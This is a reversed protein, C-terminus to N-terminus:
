FVFWWPAYFEVLVDKTEDQVISEFTKGVVVIVPGENKEPVPDSKYHPKVSGSVIGEAWATLAEVEFAGAYPYNLRLEINMAAVVPLKAADGGMATIQDKYEVGDSYSFMFKGKVKEAVATITKLSAEKEDSKSYDMFLVALPLGSEAFRQFNEASIEEVLPYGNSVVWSKLESLDAGSFSIPEGNTRYLKISSDQGEVVGAPFDDFAKDSTITKLFDKEKEGDKVGTFVLGKGNNQKVFTDVEETKLTKAVPGTKKKMWAVIDAATRGGDYEKYSEGNRFLKLTPFGQIGFKEGTKRNSDADVKALAGFEAGFKKLETAAKEYEPAL